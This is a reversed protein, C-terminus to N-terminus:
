KGFSVNVVATGSQAVLQLQPFNGTFAFAAGVNIPQGYTTTPAQGDDIWRIAADEVSVLAYREEGTLVYPPTASALAAVLTTVTSISLQRYGLSTTQYPAACTPEYDQPLPPPM